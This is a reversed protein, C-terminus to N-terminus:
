RLPDPLASALTSGWGAAAELALAHPLFPKILDVPQKPPDRPPLRDQEVRVLFERFGALQQLATRGLATPARMIVFFINNLLVSSLVALVFGHAERLAVFYIM